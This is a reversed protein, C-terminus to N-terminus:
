QQGLAGLLLNKISRYNEGENVSPDPNFATLNVVDVVDGDRNLVFLDRIYVQWSEWVRQEVKDQVWPLRRDTIMGTISKAAYEIGNVGVIHVDDM